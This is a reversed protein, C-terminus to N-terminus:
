PQPGWGNVPIGRSCLDELEVEVYNTGIDELRHADSVKLLLLGHQQAVAEVKPKDIHWNHLRNDVEISQVNDIQITHSPHGPHCYNRFLQGNPLLFEGVEYSGFHNGEPHVEIEWGPFVLFGPFHEEIIRKYAFAPETTRHETMAMGDLGMARAQRVVKEAWELNPKQFGSAEWIHTHLDLRVKM